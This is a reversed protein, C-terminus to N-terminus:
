CQRKPCAWRATGSLPTRCPSAASWTAPASGWSRRSSSARSPAGATAATSSIGSATSAGRRGRGPRRSIPSPPEEAAFRNGDRLFAVDFALRGLAARHRRALESAEQAGAEAKVAHWRQAGLREMALAEVALPSTSAGCCAVIEAPCEDGCFLVAALTAGWLSRSSSVVRLLARTHEGAQQGGSFHPTTKDVRMQPPTVMVVRPLLLSPRRVGLSELLRAGDHREEAAELTERLATLGMTTTDGDHYSVSVGVVSRRKKERWEVLEVKSARRGGCQACPALRSPLLGQCHLCLCEVAAKLEPVETAVCAALEIHGWHGPCRHVGERCGELGCRSHKGATSPLGMRPDFLGHPQPAVPGNPYLRKELRAEKVEVVSLRRKDEDSLVRYEVPAGSFPADYAGDRKEALSRSAGVSSHIRRRTSVLPM